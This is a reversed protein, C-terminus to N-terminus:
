FDILLYQLFVLVTKPINHDVFILIGVVRLVTQNTQQCLFAAIQTHSSVEAYGNCLDYGMLGYPGYDEQIEQWSKDDITYGLADGAAMGLLCGGCASLKQAM